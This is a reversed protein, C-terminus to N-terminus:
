PYQGVKRETIRQLLQLYTTAPKKAWSLASVNVSWSVPHYALFHVYQPFPLPYYAICFVPCVRPPPPTPNYASFFQACKPPSPLTLPYFALISYTPMRPPPPCPYYAIFFVLCLRPRPHFYYSAVYLSCVVLPRAWPLPWPDYALFVTWLQSLPFRNKHAHGPPPLPNNRIM